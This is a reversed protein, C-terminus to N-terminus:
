LYKLVSCSFSLIYECRLKLVFTSVVLYVHLWIYSTNCLSLTEFYYTFSWISSHAILPFLLCGYSMIFEVSGRLSFPLNTQIYTYMCTM